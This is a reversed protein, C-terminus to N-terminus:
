DPSIEELEMHATEPFRLWVIAAAAFPCATFMSMVSGYSLGVDILRGAVVLGISGGILASAMILGGATTRVGTAFLEGRYVASAPFAFGLAVGGAIATSWMPVGRFTFSLALFVTGLPVMTTAILRRGRVDAVRGGLVLGIGAPVSTATTFAAVMLASYGRVDKLYRNQFISATAIYVNTLFAVSCIGTLHRRLGPTLPSRDTVTTPFRDSEPLRRTIVAAFPLWVLSVVYVWRWGSLGLDALPLAAVAVGAGIGGMVALVGTAWARSNRPMEEVALVAVLIDLALGIPRGVAQTAVLTRFDPALAGLSCVLPAAWATAVIMPRRGRRDALAAIPICLLVGWRVVAAGLGQGGAGVGFEEAAYASTQTFLTNTFASSM